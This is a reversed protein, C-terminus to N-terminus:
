SPPEILRSSNLKDKQLFNNSHLLFVCSSPQNLILLETLLKVFKISLVDMIQSIEFTPM